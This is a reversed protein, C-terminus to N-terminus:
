KNPKDSGFFLQYAVWAIAGVIVVSALMTGVRVAAFVGVVVLAYKGVRKLQRGWRQIKSEGSEEKLTKYLPPEAKYLEMEMERLRLSRERETIEREREALEKQRNQQESGSNSKSNM